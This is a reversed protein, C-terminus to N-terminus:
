AKSQEYGTMHTLTFDEDLLEGLAVADGAVMAARQQKCDRVAAEVDNGAKM